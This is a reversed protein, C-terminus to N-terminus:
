SSAGADLKIQQEMSPTIPVERGSMRLGRIGMLMRPRARPCMSLKPAALTLWLGHDQAQHPQADVFAYVFAGWGVPTQLGEALADAANPLVCCHASVCCARKSAIHM